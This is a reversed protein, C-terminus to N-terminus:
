KMIKEDTLVIRSFAKLMPVLLILGLLYRLFAAQAAPVSTGLYKVIATVGVFLLGTLIMWLIGVVPRSFMQSQM